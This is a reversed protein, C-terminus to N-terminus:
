GEATPALACVSCARLGADQNPSAADEDDPKAEGADYGPPDLRVALQILAGAAHIILRAVARVDRPVSVTVATAIVITILIHKFM